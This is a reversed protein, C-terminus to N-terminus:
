LFKSLEINEIIEKNKIADKYAQTYNVYLWIQTIEEKSKFFVFRFRNKKVERYELYNSIRNIRNKIIVPKIIGKIGILILMSSDKNNLVEIANVDLAAKEQEKSNSNRYTIPFYCSTASSQEREVLKIKATAETKCLENNALSVTAEM